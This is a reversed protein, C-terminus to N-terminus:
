HFDVGMMINSTYGSFVHRYIEASQNTRLGLIKSVDDIQRGNLLMHIAFSHRFIKTSVIFPAGREDEILKLLHHNVTQRSMTFLRDKQRFHGLSKYFNIRDILTADCIQVFRDPVRLLHNTKPRGPSKLTHLHVNLDYRGKILCAPTLALVESIRAGTSWMLDYILRYTQNKEKNLLKLIEPKLLYSPMAEVKELVIPRRSILKEYDIEHAQVPFTVEPELQGFVSDEEIFTKSDNSKERVM